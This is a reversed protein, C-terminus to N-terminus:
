SYKGDVAMDEVEVEKTKGWWVGKNIEARGWVHWM